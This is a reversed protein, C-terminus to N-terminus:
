FYGIVSVMCSDQGGRGGYCIMNYNVEAHGRYSEICQNLSFKPLDVKQLFDSAPKEEGLQGWGALTAKGKPESNAIPLCISNISYNGSELDISYKIPRTTRLLAIDNANKNRNWKEHVIAEIVSMAVGESTDARNNM